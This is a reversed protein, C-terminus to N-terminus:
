RQGYPAAKIYRPKNNLDNYVHVSFDSQQFLLEIDHAFLEHIEAYLCGNETLCKKSLKILSAYFILPHEDPVFLALSPEFLVVNKNMSEKEQYPIYPPNSVIIDFKREQQFFVSNFIDDHLFQISLQEKKSNCKAVNLANESIDTATIKWEPRNKKLALAICGSGTAIDIVNLASSVNEAIITQIMEETEPRPILTNRNVYLELGYFWTKHIVHQIPEHRMLRKLKHALLKETSVNVDRQGKEYLDIKNQLNFIYCLLLTAINEAERVNYINELSTKVHQYTNLITAM